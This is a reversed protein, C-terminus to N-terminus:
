RPYWRQSEPQDSVSVKPEGRNGLRPARSYREPSSSEDEPSVHLQDYDDAGKGGRMALASGGSPRWTAM